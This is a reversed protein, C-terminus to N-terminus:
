IGAGNVNKSTRLVDVLAKREEDSWSQYDCRDKLVRVFSQLSELTEPGWADGNAKMSERIDVLVTRLWLSPSLESRQLKGTDLTSAISDLVSRMAPYESYHCRTWPVLFGLTLSSLDVFLRPKLTTSQKTLIELMLSRTPEAGHFGDNEGHDLTRWRADYRSLLRAMATDLHQRKTEPLKSITDEPRLVLHLPYGVSEHKLLSETGHALTLHFIFCTILVHRYNHDLDYETWSKIPFSLLM